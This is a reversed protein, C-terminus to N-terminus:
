RYIRFIFDVTLAGTKTVKEITAYVVMDGDSDFLGVEWFDPNGGGDDNAEGLALSCDTRAIRDVEYQMSDVSKQFTYREFAGPYRDPNEVCDLDSLSASPLRRFRAGKFEKWGGEGIKFYDFPSHAGGTVNVDQKCWKEGADFTVHAPYTVPSAVGVTVEVEARLPSNDLRAVM